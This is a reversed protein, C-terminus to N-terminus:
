ARGSLLPKCAESTRGDIEQKTGLASLTTSLRALLKLIPAAVGIKLGAARAVGPGLAHV